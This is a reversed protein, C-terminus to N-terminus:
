ASCKPLSNRAIKAKQARLRAPVSCHKLKLKVRCCIRAPIQHSLRQAQYLQMLLLHGAMMIITLPEYGRRFRLRAEDSCARVDEATRAARM